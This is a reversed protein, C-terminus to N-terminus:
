QHQLKKIKKPFNTMKKDKRLIKMSQNQM